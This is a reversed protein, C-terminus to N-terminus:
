FAEAKSHYDQAFADRWVSDDEWAQWEGASCEERREEREAATSALCVFSVGRIEKNEGCDL